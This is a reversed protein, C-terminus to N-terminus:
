KKTSRKPIIENTRKRNPNVSEIENFHILDHM